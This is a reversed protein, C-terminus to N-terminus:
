VGGGGTAVIRPRWDRRREAIRAGPIANMYSDVM